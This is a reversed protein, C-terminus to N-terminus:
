WESGLGYGGAGLAQGAVDVCSGSIMPLGSTPNIAPPHDSDDWSEDPYWRYRPYADDDRTSSRDHDALSSGSSWESDRASDICAAGVCCLSFTAFLWPALANDAHAGAARLTALTWPGSALDVILTANACAAVFAYLGALAFAIRVLARLTVPKNLM